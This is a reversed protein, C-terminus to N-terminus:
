LLCCSALGATGSALVATVVLARSKLLPTGDDTGAASELLPVSDAVAVAAAGCVVCCVWTPLLIARARSSCM